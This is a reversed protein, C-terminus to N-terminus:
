FIQSKYLDSQIVPVDWRYDKVTNEVLERFWSQADPAVYISHVFAPIPVKINLGDRIPENFRKGGIERFADFDIDDGTVWVVARIENEHEFSKRKYVCLHDKTYNPPTDKEFDVYQVKGINVNYPTHDFADKLATYTSCIAIGENTKLYLSWMAASEGENEHWCNVGYTTKHNKHWAREQRLREEAGAENFFAHTISKMNRLQDPWLAGEYPDKFKDLRTFFLSNTQLMAAFKTFDMYRWIKANPDKPAEFAPHEQFM